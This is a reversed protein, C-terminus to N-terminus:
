FANRGGETHTVAKDLAEIVDFDDSEEDDFILGQHLREQAKTWLHKQLETTCKKHPVDPHACLLNISIGYRIASLEGSADHYGWLHWTKWIKDGTNFFKSEGLYVLEDSM